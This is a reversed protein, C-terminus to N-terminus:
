RPEAGRDLEDVDVPGEVVELGDHRPVDKMTRHREAGRRLERGPRPETADRSTDHPVPLLGLREVRCRGRPVQDVDDAEYRARERRLALRQAGAVPDDGAGEAADDEDLGPIDHGGVQPEEAAHREAEGGLSTRASLRGATRPPPEALDVAFGQSHAARVAKVLGVVAYDIVHQNPHM